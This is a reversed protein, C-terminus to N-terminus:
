EVAYTVVQFLDDSDMAGACGFEGGEYTGRWDLSGAPNNTRETVTLADETVGAKVAAQMICEAELTSDHSASCGTVFLGTAIIATVVRVRRYILLM